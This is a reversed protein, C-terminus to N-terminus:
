PSSQCRPCYYTSRHLAGQRQMRVTGGCVRCPQGSRRYVWYRGSTGRTTIRGPAAPKASQRMLESATQVIHTLDERNLESVARFPNSRCIFLTESKYINGIGSLATQTMVAEGLSLEALAQLSAVAQELDFDDRILDPGLGRLYADHAAANPALLRVTPAAFCVALADSVELVVRAQHEPRQFREGPRYVHWSGRMKLHTHLTRGDDFRILLNKGQATVAEVLHGALEAEAIAAVSSRVRVLRQGELVRALTHATRHLTDGEPM